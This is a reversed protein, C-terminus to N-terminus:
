EARTIYASNKMVLLFDLVDFECYIAAIADFLRTTKNTHTKKKIKMNFLVSNSQEFLTHFLSSHESFDMTFYPM